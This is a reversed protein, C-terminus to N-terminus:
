DVLAQRWRAIKEALDKTAHAPSTSPASAHVLRARVEQPLMAWVQRRFLRTALTGNTVIRTITSHAALLGAVDNTVISEPVIAEDRSSGPRHCHAIVDWVAVGAATLRAAREAYPLAPDFGFLAGMIPWFANRPHAYYAAAALSAASPFSGLVLWRLAHGVLPPLGTLLTDNTVHRNVTDLTEHSPIAGKPRTKRHTPLTTNDPRSAGHVWLGLGTM